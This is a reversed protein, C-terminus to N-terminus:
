PRGERADSAGDTVEDAAADNESLLDDLSTALADIQEASALLAISAGRDGQIEMLCGDPTQTVTLRSLNEIPDAVAQREVQHAAAGPAPRPPKDKTSPLSL